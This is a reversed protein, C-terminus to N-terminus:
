VSPAPALTSDISNYLKKSESAISNYEKLITNYTVVDAHISSSTADLTTVRNTLAARESNFQAQSTFGESTAKANFALIDKNLTVVDTNYQATRENISKILSDMQTILANAHNRLNAFVSSYKTNLDVVKQRDTFYKKYYTELKPDINAIETGIVSHLENYREGPETRAYFEMRDSYDKNTEIKKYEAELLVNIDTKEQDSLRQYVAHLVEHSSTVERIGDLQKDSVNYIYIRYNSYCGLISTSNEIRDCEVNFNQTSDLVPRSAHFLFKSYDNMGARDILADMESNPQWQWVTIQDVVLQRNVIITLSLGILALCVVTNIFAGGFNRKSQLMLM